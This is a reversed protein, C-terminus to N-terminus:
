HSSKGTGETAHSHCYVVLCLCGVIRGERARGGNPVGSHSSFMKVASQGHRKVIARIASLIRDHCSTYAGFDSINGHSYAGARGCFLIGIKGCCPCMYKRSSSTRPPLGAITPTGSHTGTGTIRFGGFENRNLLIDTLDNDMIFELLRDSPSTHSWGYKVTRYEYDPHERRWAMLALDQASGPIGSMRFNEETGDIKKNIHDYTFYTTAVTTAAKVNMMRANM